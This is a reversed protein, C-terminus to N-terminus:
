SGPITVIVDDIYWGSWVEAGNSTFVFELKINKGFAAAPLPFSESAWDTFIGEIGTVLQVLLTDSNDADLVNITGVDGGLDTDAFHQFSLTAVTIGGDTLDMVPSRLWINTDNGYNTTINTGVCNAPSYATFPGTVAGGTPDGLQWATNGADGPGTGAVWGAPLAPATVGDFNESLVTVPPAPFEEIVFFREADAPRPITLTNTDPTASIDMHGGYVPWDKRAASSPDIVSRLNYLMGAQSKWEFVLDAGNGSVSLELPDKSGGVGFASFDGGMIAQIPAEGLAGSFLAVDDLKGNLTTFLDARSGIYLSNSNLLQGFPPGSASSTAAGNIYYTFNDDKDHTVAVHTWEGIAPGTGSGDSLTVTSNLAPGTEYLWQMTQSTNNQLRLEYNGAHNLGGGDSPSKAIIAGWSTDAPKVWAAITIGSNITLSPADPVLVHQSGGILSLSEGGGLAGPVDNSLSAGDVFNGHNELGSSDDANGEFRWLGVLQVAPFSIPDTPDTGAALEAADDTGDRDSDAGTPDTGTDAPGVFTGTNSEVGDSLTDGDTDANTPDTPPRAGAGAIEDGDLLTDNDSDDDTPDLNPFQAALNFEELDTLGDSDANADALGSLVTLDPAWQLEYEDPLDDGDSDASLTLTFSAEEMEGSPAGTSQIRVAYTTGDADTSFNHTGAQLQDGDIQFKSNDTDGDGAILAYTHTDGPNAADLSSLTSVLDNQGVSSSLKLPTASIALGSFIPGAAVQAIEAETLARNWLGIEDLKGNITTFLDARTGIYLPNNNVGGGFPDPAIGGGISAGNLYFNYNSSGDMTFALHSWQGVPLPTTNLAFKSQNPATGTEWGFNPTLNGQDLRLEYNGAHQLGSGGDWPTKGLIAGWTADAPKVWAAITIATPIDLSDSDPILVHQTGGSVNLSQGGGLAPPTDADLAAGNQLTGDNGNGSSDNTDGNFTWLGVLGNTIQAHTTTASFALILLAVVALPAPLRLKPNASLEKM